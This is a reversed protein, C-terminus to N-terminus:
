ICNLSIGTASISRYVAHGKLSAVPFSPNKGKSLPSFTDAIFQLKHRTREHWIMLKRGVAVHQKLPV